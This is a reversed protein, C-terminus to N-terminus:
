IGSLQVLMEVNDVVANVVFQTKTVLNVRSPQGVLKLFSFSFKFGFKVPM